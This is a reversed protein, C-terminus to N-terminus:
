WTMVNSFGSTITGAYNASAKVAYYYKEGTRHTFNTYQATNSALHTFGDPNTGNGYYIFYVTTGPIENWIIRTVGGDASYHLVQIITPTKPPVPPEPQEPAAPTPSEIVCGWLVLAFLILIFSLYFFLRRKNM